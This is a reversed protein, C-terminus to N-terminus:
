HSVWFNQFNLWWKSDVKQFQAQYWVLLQVPYCMRQLLHNQFVYWIQLYMDWLGIISLTLGLSKLVWFSIVYWKRPPYLRQNQSYSIQLPLFYPQRAEELWFALLKEAEWIRCLLSNTNSWCSCHRFFTNHRVEQPCLGTGLIKKCRNISTTHTIKTFSNFDWRIWHQM